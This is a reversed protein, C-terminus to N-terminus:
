KGEFKGAFKLFIQESSIKRRGKSRNWIKINQLGFKRKNEGTFNVGKM